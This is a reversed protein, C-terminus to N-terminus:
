KKRTLTITNTSRKGAQQNTWAQTFHDNDTVTVVLEVMHVEEPSRLGYAREIMFDYKGNASSVPGTKMIPQNGESCFHIALIHDGDLSYMTIMPAHGAPELREMVVGTSLWEYTAHVSTGHSDKGEWEGALSKFQELAPNSRHSADTTHSQRALAAAALLGLALALKALRSRM